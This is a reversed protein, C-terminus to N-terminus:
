KRVMGVIQYKEDQSLGHRNKGSPMAGRRAYINRL